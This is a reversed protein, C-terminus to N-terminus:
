PAAFRWWFPVISITQLISCVEQAPKLRYLGGEVIQRTLGFAQRARQRTALFRRLQFEFHGQPGSARGAIADLRTEVNIVHQAFAVPKGALRQGIRGSACGFVLM